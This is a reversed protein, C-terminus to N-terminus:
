KNLLAKEVKAAEEPGRDIQFTIEPPKRMRMKKLLFHYIKKKGGNLIKLAEPAKESPFASFKVIANELDESVRVETVTILTGPFEMERLLYQSLEEAMLSGIKEKRYQM